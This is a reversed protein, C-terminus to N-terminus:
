QNKKYNNILKLAFKLINHILCEIVHNQAAGHSVRIIHVKGVVLFSLEDEFFDLVGVDEPRDLFGDFIFDNPRFVSLGLLNAIHDGSQKFIQVQLSFDLILDMFDQIFITIKLVGGLYSGSFELITLIHALQWLVEKILIM